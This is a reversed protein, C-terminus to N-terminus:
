LVAACARFTTPYKLASSAFRALCFGILVIWMVVLTFLAALWRPVHWNRVKINTIIRVLPRGIIALVASILIYLVTSSFYWLLAGILAVAVAGAAWKVISQNNGM